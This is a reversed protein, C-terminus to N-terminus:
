PRPFDKGGEVSVIELRTSPRSPLTRMDKEVEYKLTGLARLNKSVMTDLKKMYQKTPNDIVVTTPTRAVSIPTM